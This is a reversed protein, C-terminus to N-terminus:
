HLYSSKKNNNTQAMRIERGHRGIENELGVKESRERV